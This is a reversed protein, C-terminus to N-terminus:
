IYPPSVSRTHVQVKNKYILKRGNTYAQQSHAHKYAPIYRIRRHTFFVKPQYIGGLRIPPMNWWTLANNVSYVLGTLRPSAPYNNLYIGVPTKPM